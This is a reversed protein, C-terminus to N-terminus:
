CMKLMVLSKGPMETNHMRKKRGFCCCCISFLFIVRAKMWKSSGSAPIDKFKSCLYRWCGQREDKAEEDDDMAETRSNSQNRRSQDSYYKKIENNIVIYLHLLQHDRGVIRRLEKRVKFM